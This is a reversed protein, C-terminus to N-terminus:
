TFEKTVSLDMRWQDTVANRKFIFNVNKKITGIGEKYFEVKVLREAIVLEAVEKKPTFSIM